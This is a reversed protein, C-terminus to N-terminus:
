PFAADDLEAVLPSHDSLRKTAENTIVRSGTLAKRTEPDVFLHDLQAGARADHRWFSQDQRGHLGFHCDHLGREELERFFWGYADRDGWDRAANLDGGVVFRRGAVVSALGDILGRLARRQNSTGVHLSALYLPRSSGLVEAGVVYSGLAVLPQRQVQRGRVFIMSGSDQAESTRDQAVVAGQGRVWEPVDLLAEQVLAIDPELELLFRWADEHTRRYKATFTPHACAMNWTVIRM